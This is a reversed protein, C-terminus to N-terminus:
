RISDFTGNDAMKKQITLPLLINLFDRLPYSSAFLLLAHPGGLFTAAIMFTSVTIFSVVNTVTPVLIRSDKHYVSAYYVLVGGGHLGLGLLCVLAYPFAGALSDALVVDFYIYLPWVLSLAILTLTLFLRLVFGGTPEKNVLVPFYVTAVPKVLRLLLRGTSVGITYLGLAELGFFYSILFKDLNEMVIPLVGSASLKVSEAKIGRTEASPPEFAERHRVFAFINFGTLFLTHILLYTETSGEVGVVLLALAVLSSFKVASYGANVKFRKQAENIQEYIDPPYTM